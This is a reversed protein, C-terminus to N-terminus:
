VASVMKATDHMLKWLLPSAAAKLVQRYVVGSDCNLYTVARDGLLM